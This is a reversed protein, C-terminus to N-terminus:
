EERIKSDNAWRTSSAGHARQVRVMTGSMGLDLLQRACACASPSLIEGKPARLWVRAGSPERVQARSRSDWHRGSGGGSMEKRQEKKWSFCAVPHLENKLRSALALELICFWYLLDILQLCSDQKCQVLELKGGGEESRVNCPGEAQERERRESRRKSMAAIAASQSERAGQKDRCGLFFSASSFLRRRWWVVGGRGKEVGGFWYFREEEMLSCCFLVCGHAKEGGFCGLL